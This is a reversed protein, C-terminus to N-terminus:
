FGVAYVSNKNYICLYLNHISRIRFGGSETTDTQFTTNRQFERKACEGEPCSYVTVTREFWEKEMASTAPFIENWEPGLEEPTCEEINDIRSKVFLHSNSEAHIIKITGQVCQIKFTTREEFTGEPFENKPCARVSYKGDHDKEKNIYLYSKHKVDFIRVSQNEGQETNFLTYQDYLDIKSVESDRRTTEM